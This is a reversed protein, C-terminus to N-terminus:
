PGVKRESAADVVRTDTYVFNFESGDPAVFIDLHITGNVDTATYTGTCDPNVTYTVTFPVQRHLVSDKDAYTSVGNSTGDGHMHELGAIAFNSQATGQVGHCSIMYTGKLTKLSCSNDSWAPQPHGAGWALLGVALIMGVGIPRLVARKM